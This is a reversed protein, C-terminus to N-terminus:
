IKAKTLMRALIDRNEDIDDVVMIVINTAAAVQRVRQKASPQQKQPTVSPLPLRLRFCSGQGKKSTLTLEGGMLEVHERSIFLGLGTGGKKIGTDAQQFPDFITKQEECSMGPGSDTITFVFHEPEDQCVQLWIGGQETFKYANGLLNILVQRIKRADGHVFVGEACKGDLHWSINKQQCRMEFLSAIGSLLESLEFDETECQSSGAEIKAIDLVHNLLSLLHSGAKEIAALTVKHTSAVSDDRQLLQSYGLVANMPTRIEHSMTALFRSKALNAAEASQKAEVLAETRQAVQQQLM